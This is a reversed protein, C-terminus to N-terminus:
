YHLVQVPGLLVLIITPSMVATSGGEKVAKEFPVFYIERMAQEDAWTCLGYHRWTERENLAFHKIYCYM